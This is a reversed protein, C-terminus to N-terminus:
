VSPRQSKDLRYEAVRTTGTRTQVEVMRRTIPHGSEKLDYIRAGLRLCGFMELAEKPTIAQGRKLHALIEACQSRESM